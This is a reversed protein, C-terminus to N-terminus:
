KEDHYSGKIITLKVQDPPKFGALNGAATAATERPLRAVASALNETRTPDSLAHRQSRAVYVVRTVVREKIVPLEITKTEIAAVAAPPEPRAQGRARMVFFTSLGFFFLLLAAVPVPLRISAGAIKRLTTWLAFPSLAQQAPRTSDAAAASKLRESLRSHYGSWFAAAPLAGQAAQDVVSLTRRLAAYEARCEGCVTLEAPLRPSQNAIDLSLSGTSARTEDLALDILRSRTAKCNHM